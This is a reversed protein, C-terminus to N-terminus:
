LLRVSVPKVQNKPLTVSLQGTLEDFQYDFTPRENIGSAISRVFTGINALSPVIGTLM